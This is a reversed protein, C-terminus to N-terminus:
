RIHALREYVTERPISRNAGYVSDLELAQEYLKIADEIKGARDAIIAMNFIHSPNKPELSAAIGLSNVAGDFDGLNAQIVAMQSSIGANNENKKQLDTLQRLAVSPYRTGLLGLMNIKVTANEPELSSLSEYAQMAEEFRGLKQLSVARGMLVRSDRKNLLYLKEFMEVASEYRGLSLAREAAVLQATKTDGTYNKRVVVYKSAPQTVPDIKKPGMQSMEGQPVMSEADYFAEPGPESAPADGEPPMLAPAAENQQPDNLQNAPPTEPQNGGQIQQIIVPPSDPSTVQALAPAGSLMM